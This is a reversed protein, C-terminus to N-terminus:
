HKRLPQQGSQRLTVSTRSTQRKEVTRKLVDEWIAQRQFHFTVNTANRWSKGLNSFTKVHHIQPINKESWFWRFILVFVHSKHPLFYVINPIKYHVFSLSVKITLKFFVDIHIVTHKRGKHCINKLVDPWRLPDKSRVNM